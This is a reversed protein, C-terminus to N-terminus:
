DGTMPGGMASFVVPVIGGGVGALGVGVEGITLGEVAVLDDGALEDVCVDAVGAGGDESMFTGSGEVRGKKRM